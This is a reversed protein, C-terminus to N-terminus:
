ANRSEELANLIAVVFLETIDGEIVEIKREGNHVYETAGQAEEEPNPVWEVSIFRAHLLRGDRVRKLSYGFENQSRVVYREPGLDGKFKVYDGSCPVTKYGETM